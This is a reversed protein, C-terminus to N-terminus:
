TPAQIIEGIAPDVKVDSFFEDVASASPTSQKAREPEPMVDNAATDAQAGTSANEGDFYEFTGDERIVADDRELAMQMETSM